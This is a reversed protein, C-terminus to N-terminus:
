WFFRRGDENLSLNCQGCAETFSNGWRYHFPAGCRPCPLMMLRAEFLLASGLGAAVAWGEPAGLAHVAYGLPVAGIWAFPRMRRWFRIRELGRKLEEPSHDGWVRDVDIGLAKAKELMRSSSRTGLRTFSIGAMVASLLLVGRLEKTLVGNAYWGIAAIAGILIACGLLGKRKM